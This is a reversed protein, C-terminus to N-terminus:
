HGVQLRINGFLSFYEFEFFKHYNEGKQGLKLSLKRIQANKWNLYHDDNIQIALKGSKRM